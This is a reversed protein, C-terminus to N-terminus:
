KAKSALTQEFLEAALKQDAAVLETVLCGQMSSLVKKANRSMSSDKYGNAVGISFRVYGEVHNGSVGSSNADKIGDTALANGDGQGAAKCLWKM